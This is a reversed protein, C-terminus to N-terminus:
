EAPSQREDQGLLEHRESEALWEAQSGRGPQREVRLVAPMREAVERVHTIVGIMHDPRSGAYLAEVAEDLSQRDLTGFGEDLSQRDLTGFGEDLFMCELRGGREGMTEVMGLSLALAAMFQEGGSLSAPSRAAGSWRDIVKWEEATERPGRIRVGGREDERASALRAAAPRDIEAADAVEPVTVRAARRGGGEAAGRQETVQGLLRLLQEVPERISRLRAVEERAQYDAAATVEAHDQIAAVNAATTGTAEIGASELAKEM